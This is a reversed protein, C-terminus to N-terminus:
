KKKLVSEVSGVGQDHFFDYYTLTNTYFNCSSDKMMSPLRLLLEESVTFFEDFSPHNQRTCKQM